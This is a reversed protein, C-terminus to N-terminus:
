ITTAARNQLYAEILAGDAELQEDCDRALREPPRREGREVQSIFTFTYPV